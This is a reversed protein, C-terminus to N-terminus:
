EKSPKFLNDIDSYGINTFKLGTVSIVADEANLLKEKEYKINLNKIEAVGSTSSPDSLNISGSLESQPHRDRTDPHLDYYCTFLKGDKNKFKLQLSAIIVEFSDADYHLQISESGKKLKKTFTILATRKKTRAHTSVIGSAKTYNWDQGNIQCLYNSNDTEKKVVKKTVVEKNKISTDDTSVQDENNKKCSSFSIIAVLIIINKKM